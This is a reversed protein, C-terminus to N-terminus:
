QLKHSRAGEEARKRLTIDRAIAVIIDGTASPVVRRVSEVPFTSGDKRRYVGEVSAAAQDGSLLREYAQALDSGPVSFVDVPGMTLLEERRYGLARCAADNMDVYRMRAPDILTVLVASADVAARFQRLEVDKRMEETVDQAIGGIRYIEGARNRVAFTRTHLWRLTGDCRVIRYRHDVGGRPSGDADRRVRAADDPHVIALFDDRHAPPPCGTVVEWAPSVYLIRESGVERMWVIEPVNAAFEGFLGDNGSNRERACTKAM